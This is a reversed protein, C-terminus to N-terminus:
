ETFSFMKWAAQHIDKNRLSYIIPNMVPPLVAYLFAALLDVPTSSLDQQRFYSFIATSLFLSFVTLHPTCTYFVKRRGQSSQIKFVTSFIFGYSIMILFFCFSDVTVAIAFTLWKNLTTDTCSIRWLQSMDCFFQKVNSTCFHLRFTSITQVLAHVIVIVWSAATIQLCFNLNMIRMYQLPLCIAVYRDYAMVTLFSLEAGVSTTVLFVQFACGSFTIRRDNTLSIAMSKPVTVSILCLDVLSLNVLFFYMPNHLHHDYTITLIIFINGMLAVLYITLFVGFHLIQLERTDFFRLLIFENVTSQNEM